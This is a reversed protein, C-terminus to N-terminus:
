PYGVGSWRREQTSVFTRAEAANPLTNERDAFDLSLVQDPTCDRPLHHTVVVVTRRPHVLGSGRQLLATLLDAGAKADLHETPEDLLLVEAPSCIARALLIRRREGGSVAREGGTLVTDLGNSLGDLWDGLGVSRVVTEAEDASLEGRAVRLNELVSTDFLHADEAFFTAVRRVSAAELDTIPTGGLTLRGEVPPLLGALTMLLSTKGVGSPGTIAVRAGRALDLDIARTSKEPCTSWGARLGRARLVWDDVSARSTGVKTTSATDILATDILATIRGAAIRARSVAQAAVPLPGVAEFAALPLLVLIALAMPTMTGGDYAVVGILLSGLVSVGTALPTAAAAFAARPAARDTAAAVEASASRAAEVVADLRGAVRLEAGHDLAAVAHEAYEATAAMGALEATRAASTALWPAVIGAVALSVALIGAAALSITALLGIAAFSLVVAVAMPVIGRVVVAGVTDIDEGTRSLLVGRRVGTVAAPDGTALRRYINTRAATMGRFATDHSALRELYRFVGRSIGLARVAVVAVTLDLVPPMQWARAILWAALAALALGSGLAVAGFVVATAIRRPQLQLLALARWLPDTSM